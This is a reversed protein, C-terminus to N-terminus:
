TLGDGLSVGSHGPFGPKERVPELREAAPRGFGLRFDSSTEPGSRSFERKASVKTLSRPEIPSQRGVTATPHPGIEPDRFYPAACRFGLDKRREANM